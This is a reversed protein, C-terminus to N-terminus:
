AAEAVILSSAASELCRPALTPYIQIKCVQPESIFKWGWIWVMRRPPPSVGEFSHFSLRMALFSKISGMRHNIVQAFISVANRDAIVADKTHIFICNCKGHLIIAIFSLPLFQGNGTHFEDSAEQHMNRGSTKYTDAVISQQTGSGLALLKCKAPIQEAAPFIKRLETIKLHRFYQFMKIADLDACAFSTTSVKAFWLFPRQLTTLFLYMM